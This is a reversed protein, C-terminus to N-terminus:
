HKSGAAILGPPAGTEFREIALEFGLQSPARFGCAFSRDPAETRTM